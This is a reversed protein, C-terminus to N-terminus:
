MVPCCKVPRSRGGSWIEECTAKGKVTSRGTYKRKQGNNYALDCLGWTDTEFSKQRVHPGSKRGTNKVTEFRGKGGTKAANNPSGRRRRGVKCTGCSHTQHCNKGGGEPHGGRLIRTPTRPLKQSYRGDWGELTQGGRSGTAPRQQGWRKKANTYHSWKFQSINETEGNERKQSISISEVWRQPEQRPRQNSCM